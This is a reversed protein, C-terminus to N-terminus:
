RAEAGEVLVTWKGQLSALDADREHGGPSTGATAAGRREQLLRELQPRRDDLLRKLLQLNCSARRPGCLGAGQEGQCWLLGGRPGLTPGHSSCCCLPSHEPRDRLATLAPQPHPSQGASPLLAMLWRGALSRWESTLLLPLRPLVAGSPGLGALPCCGAVGRRDSPLSPQEEATGLQTPWCQASLLTCQAGGRRSPLYSPDDGIRPSGLSVRRKPALTWSGAVAGQQVVGPNPVRAWSQVTRKALVSGM